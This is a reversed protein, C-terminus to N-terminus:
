IYKKRRLYYDLSEKSLGEIEKERLAKISKILSSSTSNAAKSASEAMSKAYATVGIDSWSRGNEKITHGAISRYVDWVKDNAKNKIHNSAFYAGVAAMSVGAVAAAIKMARKKKALAKGSREDAAKKEYKQTKKNAWKEAGEAEKKLATKKWSAANKAGQRYKAAKKEYKEAKRIQKDGYGYHARGASTLSGDENQWRRLGWKQGKIGHHYLEDGNWDDFRM